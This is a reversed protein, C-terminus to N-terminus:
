MFMNIHDIPPDFFQLWDALLQARTPDAITADAEYLERVEDECSNLELVWTSLQGQMAGQHLLEEL